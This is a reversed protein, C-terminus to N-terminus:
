VFLDKSKKIKSGKRDIAELNKSIYHINRLLPLFAVIEVREYDNSIETDRTCNNM